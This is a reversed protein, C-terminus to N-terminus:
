NEITNFYENAKSKYYNRLEPNLTKILEIQEEQKRKYELFGNLNGAENNKGSNSKRKDDFDREREAKDHELLRTLIDQQRKVMDRDFRKNVLDEEMDELEKILDNLKNGNGSGDQNQLQRLKELTKRIAGQEAAMKALQKASMGEGPMMGQGQGPSEGPKKGGPNKGKKLSELQKKLADKMEQMSMKGAGPKKGSGGPNDCSGSGPQQSKMQNQLQELAESLLLAVNNYSTMVYQESSLAVTKKREELNNLSKSM